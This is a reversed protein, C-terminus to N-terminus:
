TATSGHILAILQGQRKTSTKAFVRQVHTKVTNLTVRHSEAIEALSSGRALAQAVAAESPTFDFLQQLTLMSATVTEPDRVLVIAAATSASGDHSPMLPAVTLTLPLRGPRALCMSQGSPSTRGAAILVAARVLREFTRACRAETPVLCGARMRLPSGGGLLSAAYPNAHLLTSSADVVFAAIRAGELAAISFRERMGAAALRHRLELARKLHPVFASVCAKEASDYHGLSRVRHIGLVGLKSPAVQFVSGIVYFVNAQRCWDAYYETREFERDSIMDASSHVQSMGLEQAKAAWVDRKWYYAEYPAVISDEFNPTRDLFQAGGDTPQVLVASSSAGFARAIQGCLGAWRQADLVADYLSGILDHQLLRSKAHMTGGQYILRM